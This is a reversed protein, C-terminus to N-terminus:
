NREGARDWGGGRIADTESRGTAEEVHVELQGGVLPRQPGGGGVQQRSARRHPDDAARDVPAPLRVAVQPLGHDVLAPAAQGHGLLQAAHAQAPHLGRDDELLHTRVDGRGRDEALHHGEVRQGVAGPPWSQDGALRHSRTGLAEVSRADVCRDGVHDHHGLVIPQHRDLQPLAARGGLRRHVDGPLEAPEPRRRQGVGGADLDPARGLHRARPM